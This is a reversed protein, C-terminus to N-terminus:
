WCLYNDAWGVDEPSEMFHTCHADSIPGDYSWALTVPSSAPLCVYANSWLSAAGLPETIQVCKMGSISGAASFVLGLDSVSCLYNDSWASAGPNVPV